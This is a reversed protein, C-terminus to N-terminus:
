IARPCGYFLLKCNSDCHDGAVYGFSGAKAPATFPLSAAQGVARILVDLLSVVSMEGLM